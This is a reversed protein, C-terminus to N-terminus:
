RFAAYDQAKLINQVGSFAAAHPDELSTAKCLQSCLFIIYRFIKLSVYKKLQCVIFLKLM